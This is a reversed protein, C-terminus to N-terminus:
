RSFIWKSQQNFKFSPPHEESNMAVVLLQKLCKTHMCKYMKLLQKHFKCQTNSIPNSRIPYIAPINVLGTIPLIRPHPSRHAALTVIQCFTLHSLGLVMVLGLVLVLGLRIRLGLGMLGLRTILRTQRYYRRWVRSIM